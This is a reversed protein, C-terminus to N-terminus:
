RLAGDPIKRRELNKCYTILDELSLPPSYLFGQYCDCALKHLREKQEHTEVYEAIIHIGKSRALHVISSIIDGCVPNDLIEKTLSGDLKITSLDFEKLYLLSSHGMGFDDMSIPFGLAQLAKITNVRTMGGLAVQETIEIEIRAPSVNYKRAIRAFEGAIAPSGLQSPTVNVSIIIDEFGKDTMTRLASASQEFVWYGIEHIMQSEEALAIMIAPSISGLQEHEWRILTEAGFVSNDFNVQPQFKVYLKGAKFANKMDIALERAMRGVANQKDLLFAHRRDSEILVEDALRTLTRSTNRTLSKEYLKVFPLYILTAVAFNFIQLLSGRISGGTTVFGGMIIPTTWEVAEITFPVLGIYIAAYSIFTLILPVCVFPLLLYFNFVVPVGFIIPENANILGPLVSIKTIQRMGARRTGIIIAAILSLTTGAGGMYVFVDFFQKTFIYVPELGYAVLAQNEALAPVFLSQSVPVLVSSGHIGLFWFLHTATVFVASASYKSSMGDFWTRLGAYIAAHINYVGFFGSLLLRFTVFASITLVTAFFASKLQRFNAESANSYVDVWLWKIRHLSVFLSSATLATLISLFVGFAGLKEMSITNGYVYMLSYFCCISVIAGIFPNADGGSRTNKETILSHSILLNMIIAMIAFTSQYVYGGFSRWGEGFLTLMFQQYAPIPLNNIFLAFSGLLMFPITTVLGRRTAKIFLANSIKYASNEIVQKLKKLSLVM